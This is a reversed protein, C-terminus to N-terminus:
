LVAVFGGLMAGLVVVLNQAKWDFDSFAVRKRRLGGYFLAFMFTFVNRVKESIPLHWSAFRVLRKQL